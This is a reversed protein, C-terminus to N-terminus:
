NTRFIRPDLAEVYATFGQDGEFVYVPQYYEQTDDSEYYALSVKRVIARDIRATSAIYAEGAEVIKWASDPSRLPYTEMQEYEIPYAKMKFELISGNASLVAHVPGQGATSTVGSYKGEIPERYLDVQLFDADSLSAAPAFQGGIAKIFQTTSTGKALDGSLAGSQQLLSKVKNTLTQTNLLQNQSLLQPYSSWNTTIAFTGTFINMELVSLYPTTLTWRYLHDNIIEPEFVYGLAAAKKKARDAALLNPQFPQMFYVNARDSFVPLKGDATELAYSTPKLRNEPFRLKPLAGFGMSPPPPPEPHTAKWYSVAASFLIRGVMLFLLFAGGVKIVNRMISAAKTLNLKEPTTGAM